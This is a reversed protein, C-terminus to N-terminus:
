NHRAECRQGKTPAKKVRFDARKILGIEDTESKVVGSIQSVMREGVPM